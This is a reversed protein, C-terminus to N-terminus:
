TMTEIFEELTHNDIRDGHSLYITRPKFAAVKELSKLLVQRDEYFM